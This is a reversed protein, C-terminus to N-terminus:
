DTSQVIYMGYVVDGDYKIVATDGNELAYTEKSGDVSAPTGLVAHCDERSAGTELTISEEAATDAPTEEASDATVFDAAASVSEEHNATEEPVDTAQVEPAAQRSNDESYRSTNEAVTNATPVATPTPAATESVVAEESAPTATEVPAEIVPETVAEGIFEAIPEPMIEKAESFGFATVSCVAMSVAAMVGVAKFAGSTRKFEAIRLLRRQIGRKPSAMATTYKFDRSPTHEIVSIILRGYDKKDALNLRKLVSEDCCLECCENISKVLFHAFPNFWHVSAALSAILKITLDKHRYHTLEHAFIMKLEDYTFDRSPIVIAPKFIGYLLPSTLADSVMIKIDRSVGMIRRTESYASLIKEDYTEESIARLSRMTRIYRVLTVGFSVAAVALWVAFILAVASVHSGVAAAESSQVTESFGRSVEINIIKPVTFVAQLPVILLVAATVSLAYYWGSFRGRTVRKVALALLYMISGSISMLILNYLFRVM